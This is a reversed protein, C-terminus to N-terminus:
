PRDTQSQWFTVGSGQGSGGASERRDRNEAARGQGAVRRLPPSSGPTFMPPMPPELPDVVAEIVAPGDHDLARKLTAGAEKPDEIRFGAVGFGEAVRVFDIPQLEVEYEPNGELVMQEWKIQGLVNNKIIVTKIPLKYKVMTALEGMLMTFGGDGVFAVVQRGPYAVQAGVAYPVGCAMTALNGSITFMQDARLKWHRAIWTAITGSDSTVIADDALLPGLEHSVVQPKMPMSTRTGLDTMLQWWDKMGNQAKDLFSRDQKRQIM